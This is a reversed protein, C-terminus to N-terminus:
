AEPAQQEQKEQNLQKKKKERADLRKYLNRRLILLMVVFAGAACFHLSAYLDEGFYGLVYKAAYVIAGLVGVVMVNTYREEIEEDKIGLYCIFLLSLSPIVNSINFVLCLVIFVIGIVLAVIKM